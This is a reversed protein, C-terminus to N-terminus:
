QKSAFSLRPSSSTIHAQHSILSILKIHYLHLHQSRFLGLISYFLSLLGVCMGAQKYADFNHASTDESSSSCRLQQPLLKPLSLFQCILDKLNRHADTLKQRRQSLWLCTYVCGAFARLLTDNHYALPSGLLLWLRKPSDRLYSLFPLCLQTVTGHRQPLWLFTEHSENPLAFYAM